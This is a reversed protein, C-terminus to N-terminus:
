HKYQKLAEIMQNFSPPYEAILINNQTNFENATTSGICLKLANSIDNHTCISRVGSPSFFLIIDYNQDLKPRTEVTQYVVLERYFIAEKQLGDVLARMRISGSFYVFSRDAAKSCILQALEQSNNAVLVLEFGVSKALEATTYGVCYAKIGKSILEKSKSHNLFSKIANQSTFIVDTFEEPMDFDIYEVEISAVQAVKYGLASVSREEQQSLLRTSLISLGNM